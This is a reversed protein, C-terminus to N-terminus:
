VYRLIKCLIRTFGNQGLQLVIRSSLEIKEPYAYKKLLDDIPLIGKDLWFQDRIVPKDWSSSFSKQSSAIVQASRLYRKLSLSSIKNFLVEGKVSNILALSYGKDEYKEKECKNFKLNWFDAITIDSQRNMNTYLCNYCPKNSILERLFLRLFPDKHWHGIYIKGNLFKAKINFRSWSRKKDRFKFEVLLSSFRNELWKKYDSFILPSPTGHCVFDCTYLNEFDRKLFAKLGAVQCPTGVFLVQRKNLLDNKVDRLIQGIYSQVYKSGRLESLEDLTTVRKHKVVFDSDFSVGYVIGGEKLFPIAIESFLGGSSSNKRIEENKSWCVYGYQSFPSRELKNLVPCHQICAGCKTCLENNIKPVYFGEEDVAIEIANNHCINYCSMCGTCNERKCLQMM